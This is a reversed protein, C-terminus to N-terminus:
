HENNVEKGASCDLSMIIRNGFIIIVDYGVVAAQEFSYM